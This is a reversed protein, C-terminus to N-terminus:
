FILITISIICPPITLLRSGTLVHRVIALMGIITLCACEGALYSVFVLLLMGLVLGSERVAFPIGIIGSGVIANTLNVSAGVKGSRTKPDPINSLLRKPQPPHPAM